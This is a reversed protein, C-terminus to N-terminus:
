PGRPLLHFRYVSLRGAYTNFCTTELLAADSTVNPTKPSAPSGPLAKSMGRWRCGMRKKQPTSAAPAVPLKTQGSPEPMGCDQYVQQVM